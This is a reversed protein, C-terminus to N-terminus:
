KAEDGNGKPPTVVGHVQWAKADKDPTKGDAQEDPPGVSILQVGNVGRVGDCLALPASSNRLTLYSNLDADQGLHQGKRLTYVTKVTSVTADVVVIKRIQIAKKGARAADRYGKFLLEVEAAAKEGNEPPTINWQNSLKASIPFLALLAKATDNTVDASADTLTGDPSFKFTTNSSGILPQKTVIYYRKPDAVMSISWSNVFVPVEQAGCTQETVPVVTLPILRSVVMQDVARVTRDYNPDGENLKRVEADLIARVPSTDAMRIPGSSPADTSRSVKSKGDVELIESVKFQVAIESIARITDQTAVPVKIYFPIGKLDKNGDSVVVGACGALALMPLAIVATRNLM